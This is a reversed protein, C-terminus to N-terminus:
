STASFTRLKISVSCLYSLTLDNPNNETYILPTGACLMPVHSFLGANAFVYAWIHIADCASYSVVTTQKIKKNQVNKKKKHQWNENDSNKKQILTKWWGTSTFICCM